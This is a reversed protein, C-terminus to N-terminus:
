KDPLEEDVYVHGCNPKFEGAPLALPDNVDRSDLEYWQVRRLEWVHGSSFVLARSVFPKAQCVQTINVPVARM